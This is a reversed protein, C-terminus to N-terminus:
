NEFDLLNGNQRLVESRVRLVYNNFPLLSLCCFLTLHGGSGEEQLLAHSRNLGHWWAMGKPYHAWLCLWGSQLGNPRRGPYLAACPNPASRWFCTEEDIVGVVYMLIWQSVCEFICYMAVFLWSWQSSRKNKASWIESSQHPFISSLYIIEPCIDSCSILCM